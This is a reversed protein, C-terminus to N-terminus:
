ALDPRTRQSLGSRKTPSMLYAPRPMRVFYGDNTMRVDNSDIAHCDKNGCCDHYLVPDTKGTYWDYAGANGPLVLWALAM